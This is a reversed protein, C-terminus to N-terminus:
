ADGALGNGLSARVVWFPYTSVREAARGLSSTGGDHATGFCTSVPPPATFRALNSSTDQLRGTLVTEIARERSREPELIVDVGADRLTHWFWM